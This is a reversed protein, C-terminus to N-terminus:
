GLIAKKRCSSCVLGSTTGDDSICDIDILEGCKDCRTLLGTESDEERVNLYESNYFDHEFKAKAADYSDAETTIYQYYITQIVFEYKKSM